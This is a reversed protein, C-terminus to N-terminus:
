YDLMDLVPVSFGTPMIIIIIIIIIIIMMMIISLLHPAM